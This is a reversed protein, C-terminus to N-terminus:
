LVVSLLLCCLIRLLGYSLYKSYQWAPFFSPFCLGWLAFLFLTWLRVAKGTQLMTTTEPHKWTKNGEETIKEVGGHM